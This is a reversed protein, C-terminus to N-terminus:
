FYPSAMLNVLFLLIFHTKLKNYLTQSWLKLLLSYPTHAQTHTCTLTNMNQIEFDYFNNLLKLKNWDGIWIRITLLYKKLPSAPSWLLPEYNRPWLDRAKKAEPSPSRKIEQLRSINPCLVYPQQTARGLERLLKGTHCCCGSGDLTTIIFGVKNQKEGQAEENTQKTQKNNNKWMTGSVTDSPFFQSYTQSFYSLIFTFKTKVKDRRGLLVLYIQM